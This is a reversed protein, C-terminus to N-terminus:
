LGSSTHVAPEAKPATEVKEKVAPKKEAKTITIKGDRYEELNHIQHSSTLHQMLMEFEGDTVSAGNNKDINIARFGDILDKAKMSLDKSLETIKMIKAM